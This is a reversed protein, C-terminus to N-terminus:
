RLSNFRIWVVDINIFVTGATPTSGSLAVFAVNRQGTRVAGGVGKIHKLLQAGDVRLHQMTQPVGYQKAMRVAAVWLDKPICAGQPRSERWRQFFAQSQELTEDGDQGPETHMIENM